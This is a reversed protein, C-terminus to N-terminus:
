LATVANTYKIISIARHSQIHKILRQFQSLLLSGFMGLCSNRTTLEVM